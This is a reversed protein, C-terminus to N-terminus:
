GHHCRHGCSCVGAEHRRESGPSRGAVKSMHHARSTQPSVKTSAYAAHWPMGNSIVSGINVVKARQFDKATAKLFPFFAQVLRLPGLVHLDHMAALKAPDTYVLPATGTAGAQVADAM